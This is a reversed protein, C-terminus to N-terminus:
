QPHSRDMGRMWIGSRSGRLGAAVATARFAPERHAIRFNVATDAPLEHIFDDYRGRWAAAL